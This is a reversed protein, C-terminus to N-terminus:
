RRGDAPPGRCRASRGGCLWSVRWGLARAQVRPGSRQETRSGLRPGHRRGSQHPQDDDHDLRRGLCRSPAAERVGRRAAALGAVILLGGALYDELMTTTHVAWHGFGRRITELVPLLVGSPSPPPSTTACKLATLPHCNNYRDPLVPSRPSTCLRMRAGCSTATRRRKPPSTSFPAGTVRSSGWPSGERGNRNEPRAFRYRAVVARRVM